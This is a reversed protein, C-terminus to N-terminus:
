KKKSVNKVKEELLTIKQVLNKIQTAQVSNMLCLQLILLLLAVMGCFMIMSTPNALFLNSFKVLWPYLLVILILVLSIFIWLLSYNERLKRKRVLNLILMLLFMAVIYFFLKQVLPM